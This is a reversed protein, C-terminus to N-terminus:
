VMESAGANPKMEEFVGDALKLGDDREIIDYINECEIPVVMGIIIWMLEFIILFRALWLIGYPWDIKDDETYDDGIRGDKGVEDIFFLVILLCTFVPIVFKNFITIYSHVNEGTRKKVIANLKEIGFKWAIFYVEALISVYLALSGVYQDFLDFWWLGSDLSFIMSCICCVTCVVGAFVEKRMKQLISPFFDTLFQILYDVFGFASDVGLCLMMFFFIVAWFNSWAIENLLGPFAIFALDLGGSSVDGVAIGKVKAIHGLFPFMTISAFFSTASNALPVGYAVPMILENSQRASGYFMLPGFSVGSSFLIQVSADKWIKANWFGKSFDPKFLFKLGDGAGDLTLGRIMLIGLVIYPGVCTVYVMKGTSKLGKFVCFYLVIYSLVMCIAVGPVFKNTDYIGKSM